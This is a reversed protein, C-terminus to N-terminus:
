REGFKKLVEPRDYEPDTTLTVLRAPLVAQLESMRQTMKPCPGACKTFIIDALWVQGRLDALSVARGDQNTLTFEPLQAIPRLDIAKTEEPWSTQNKRHQEIQSRVFAATILLVTAVISGWVLWEIKRNSQNMEM